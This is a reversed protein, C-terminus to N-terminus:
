AAVDLDDRRVLGLILDDEYEELLAEISDQTSRRAALPMSEAEGVGNRKFPKCLLCGARQNKPRRRKFHMRPRRLPARASDARLALVAHCPVLFLVDGPVM